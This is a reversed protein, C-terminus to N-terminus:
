GDRTYHTDAATYAILATQEVVVAHAEAEEAEGGDVVVEEDSRAVERASSWTVVGEGDEDSVAAAAAVEVEVVVAVAVAVM